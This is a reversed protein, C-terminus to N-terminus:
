SLMEIAVRVRDIQHSVAADFAGDAARELRALEFRLLMRALARIM